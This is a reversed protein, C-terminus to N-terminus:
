IIVIESISLKGIIRSNLVVILVAAAELLYHVSLGEVDRDEAISSSTEVITLSPCQSQSFHYDSLDARFCM